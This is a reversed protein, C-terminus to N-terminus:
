LDKSKETGAIVAEIMAARVSFNELVRVGEITTGGPSTVRDRLSDPHEHTELVM